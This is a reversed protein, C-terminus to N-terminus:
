AREFAAKTIDVACVRRLGHAHASSAVHRGGHRRGLLSPSWAAMRRAAASPNRASSYRVGGRLAVPRATAAARDETRLCRVPACAAWTAPFFRCELLQPQRYWWMKWTAYSRRAAPKSRPLWCAPSTTACAASSTARLHAGTSAIAPSTSTSFIPGRDACLRLATRHRHVRNEVEGELTVIIVHHTTPCSIFEVQPIGPQAAADDCAAFRSLDSLLTSDASM